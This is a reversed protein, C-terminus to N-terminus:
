KNVDVRYKADLYRELAQTVRKAEDYAVTDFPGDVIGDLYECLREVMLISVELNDFKRLNWVSTKISSMVVDWCEITFDIDLMTEKFNSLDSDEFKQETVDTIVSAWRKLKEQTNQYVREATKAGM